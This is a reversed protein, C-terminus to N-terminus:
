FLKTRGKKLKIRFEMFSDTGKIDIRFLEFIDKLKQSNVRNGIRLAFWYGHKALVEKMKSNLEPNKRHTGGYPYALVKVFSLHNTELFEDCLRLDDDIEDLSLNKYNKHSYSHIGFEIFPNQGIEKLTALDMLPENGADWVNVKGIHSLPLFITAKMGFEELLPLLYTKNNLYGDDFTLIISKSPITRCQDQFYKLEEFSLCKYNNKKLYRFQKELDDARITLSDRSDISIKHYMLIPLGKKPALPLSYQLTLLVLVVFFILGVVYM